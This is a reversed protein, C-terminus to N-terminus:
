ANTLEYHLMVVGDEFSKAEILSLPVTRHRPAFLPIGQGILVPVVATMIEDVEGADLFAAISESGGFLWINKGPEGRLKTALAAADSFFEVGPSERPEHSHVYIRHKPFHSTTGGLDFSKRGMVITDVSKLFAPMGYQHKPWPRDLFDYAGDPRAIFGDASTALHVIFKRM